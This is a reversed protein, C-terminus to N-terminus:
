EEFSLKPDLFLGLHKQLQVNHFHNDNFNLSLNSKFSIKQIFLLEQAQKRPDPDHNLSVTTTSIDQVTSFLHRWWFTETYVTFELM